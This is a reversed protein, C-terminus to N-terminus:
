KSLSIETEIPIAVKQEAASVKLFAENEVYRLLSFIFLAIGSMELFEEAATLLLMVSIKQM